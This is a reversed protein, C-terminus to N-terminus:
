LSNYINIPSETDLIRTTTDCVSFNCSTIIYTSQSAVTQKKRENKPRNPDFTAIYAHCNRKWHDLKKYFFCEVHNKDVKSIKSQKPDVAHFKQVKKKKERKSSRHGISSGGVLNM